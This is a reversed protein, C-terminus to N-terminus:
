SMAGQAEARKIKKTSTKTFECDRVQAHHIQKYGALKRNHRAV